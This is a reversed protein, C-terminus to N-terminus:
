IFPGQTNSQALAATASRTVATPWENKEKGREKNCMCHVGPSQLLEMSKIHRQLLWLCPALCCMVSLKRTPGTGVNDCIPRCNAACNMHLRHHAGPVVTTPPLDRDRRTSCQELTVTVTTYLNVPAPPLHGGHHSLVASQWLQQKLWVGWM